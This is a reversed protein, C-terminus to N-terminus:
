SDYGRPVGLVGILKCGSRSPGEQHLRCAGGGEASTCEASGGGVRRREDSSDRAKRQGLLGSTARPPHHSVGATSIPPAAAHLSPEFLKAKQPSSVCAEEGLVPRPSQLKFFV